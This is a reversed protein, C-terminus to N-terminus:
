REQKLASEHWRRLILHSVLSLVLFILIGTLSILILAAFLRPANLRYGAEIIRSALGSSQGQAGAVFEAVVAGILSLGGAIKLGGLFYPMAAPLRLYRLQQWRTAGNLKFLDRLNRDVSNLGLTTNSLIPFFAVIWSCLLLKTTQNNIYINILPFIAVIPTVQLVIAFPFFSMEVWKSQAFLVALGVGGIVALLLSLFTIRLTVLLSSFLLGADDHLTQLVVGPRPLIYQPIGNWVCIRDWLWIALVMIALPLVWKGIRELREQRVRRAEEPDLKLANDEIATM